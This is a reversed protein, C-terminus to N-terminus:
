ECNSIVEVQLLSHKKILSDLMQLQGLCVDVLVIRDSDEPVMLHLFVSVFTNANKITGYSITVGM